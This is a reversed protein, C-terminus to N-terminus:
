VRVWKCCLQKGFLHVRLVFLWLLLLFNLRRCCLLCTPAHPQSLCGGGWLVGWLVWYCREPRLPLVVLSQVPMLGRAHQLRM